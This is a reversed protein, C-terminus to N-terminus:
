FKELVSDKPCRSGELAWRVGHEDAWKDLARVPVYVNLIPDIGGVCLGLVRGSMDFIPGGSSGPYAPCSIQDVVTWVEPWGRIRSPHVETQSVVGVSLSDSFQEGLFNGIAFIKDGPKAPTLPAWEVSLFATPEAEVFLLAVDVASDQVLVRAKYVREGVLKGDHRIFSRVKAWGDADDEVVHRATFCFWRVKGERNTRRVMVGTGQTEGTDILVTQRQAKEYTTLPKPHTVSEFVGLGVLAALLHTLIVVHLKM